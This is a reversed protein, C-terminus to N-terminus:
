ARRASTLLYGNIEPGSRRAQPLSDEEGSHEPKRGTCVRVIHAPCQLGGEFQRGSQVVQSNRPTNAQTGSTDAAANEAVVGATLEAQEAVGDVEGGTEAGRPDLSDEDVLFGEM